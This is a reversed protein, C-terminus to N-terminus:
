RTTDSQEVFLRVVQVTHEHTGKNPAAKAMMMKTKNDKAVIIPTGKEEEKEQDSHVHLGFEGDTCRRRRRREKQHGCAEARGKGCHPCWNRFVVHDLNHGEVVKKSPVAEVKRARAGVGEESTGRFTEEASEGFVRKLMEEEGKM